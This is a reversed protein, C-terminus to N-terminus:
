GGLYRYDWRLVRIRYSKRCSAVTDHISPVGTQIVMYTEQALYSFASEEDYFKMDAVSNQM